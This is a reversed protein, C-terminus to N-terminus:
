LLDAIDESDGEAFDDEYEEQYRSWAEADWIEMFDVSGIVVCERELGAYSRHAPSLTIRGQKDLEQEDASAALRRVYARAKPNSRSVKAANRARVQFEARPHVALSHDQGNM